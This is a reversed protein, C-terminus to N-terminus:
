VSNRKLIVHREAFGFSHQLSHKVKASFTVISLLCYVATLLDLMTMNMRTLFQSFRRCFCSIAGDLRSRLLMMMSIRLISPIPSTKSCYFSPFGQTRSVEVLYLGKCDTCRSSPHVNKYLKLIRLNECRSCLELVKKPCSNEFRSTVMKHLTAQSM